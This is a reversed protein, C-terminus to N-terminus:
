MLRQYPLANSNGTLQPIHALAWCGAAKAGTLPLRSGGAVEEERTYGGRAGTVDPGVPHWDQQAM